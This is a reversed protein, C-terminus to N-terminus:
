DGGLADGSPQPEPPFRDILSRGAVARGPDRGALKGLTVGCLMAPSRLLARFTNESLVLREEGVRLLCSIPSASRRLILSNCSTVKGSRVRSISSIQPFAM